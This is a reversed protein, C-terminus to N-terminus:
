LKANLFRRELGECNVGYRQGSPVPERQTLGFDRRPTPRKVLDVSAQLMIVISSKLWLM